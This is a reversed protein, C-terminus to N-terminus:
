KKTKDNEDDPKSEKSNISFEISPKVKLLAAVFDEYWEEKVVIVIFQSESFFVSLKKTNRDLLVSEIKEIDYKTKIIGFCTVLKKSKEDVFYYTSILLSTLVTALLAAAFYMAAYQIIKITPDAASATGNTILLYTNVGAAAVALALGLYIFVKTLKTFQFNFKQM